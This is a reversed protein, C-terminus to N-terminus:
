VCTDSPEHNEHKQPGFARWALAFDTMRRIGIWLAQPGPPGDDVRGNHGGLEGLLLLFAGLEPPSEPLPEDPRTIKWVPMWEDETFLVECSLKPCHRGLMTLYMVRWAIIRYLMLCRVLRESTELQIKEVQCGMKYVRFYIEIPWRGRYYDIVLLVQEPTEIPLSTILLWEVAEVDPPPNIEKVLVVNVALDPLTTHQRYPAKLNVRQARIEVLAVRAKRKPTAPLELAKVLLRPASGMSRKLKEYCADDDATPETLSRNKGARIVYDAAVGAAAQMQAEVFLEYIDGERDAVSVIQTGPQQRAVDCALRYGELWRFTEKTELPDYQRQKSQGFGELSRAWIKVGVVGLCLGEPTFAIHSHDLFGLRKESSLPGAGEPPHASYDLETTDQAILVVKHEAIRALTAARHPRLIEEAQVNDNDFFRYAAQTEAWGQSAANISAQPDSWFSKVLLRARKDLRKDGLDITDLENEIETTIACRRARVGFHCSDSHNTRQRLRRAM